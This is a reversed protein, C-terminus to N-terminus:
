ATPGTPGPARGSAPPIGFIRRANGTALAATV